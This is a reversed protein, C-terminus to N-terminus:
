QGPEQPLLLCMMSQDIKNLTKEDFVPTADEGSAAGHLYFARIVPTQSPTAKAPVDKLLPLFFPAAENLRM